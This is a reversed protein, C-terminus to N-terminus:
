AASSASAPDVLFLPEHGRARLRVALTLPSLLHGVEPWPAFGIRAM